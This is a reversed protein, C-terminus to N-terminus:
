NTARVLDLGADLLRKVDGDTHAEAYFRLVPETGSPRILLWCHDQLVYKVGDLGSVTDVPFGAIQNPVSMMLQKVLGPKSFSEDRNDTRAYCFPGVQDRLDTLLRELSTGCACLAEVLLLGMLIGDGDPIHERISMSGSEEGGMLVNDDGFFECIHDFGVPTEHVPLGHHSAIVNIMQTTSVTKVIAGRRKRREVLHYLLLAFILQPSMFKGGPAMAGIRDADGDLALGITWPSRSSGMDRRLHGLNCEIPEPRIGGFGPNQDSHLENVSCGRTGLLTTICGHGSGHMVDVLVKPKWGDIVYSDIM